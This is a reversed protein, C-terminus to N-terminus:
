SSRILRRPRGFTSPWTTGAPPISSSMDLCSRSTGVKKRLGARKNMAKFVNKVADYTLRRPPEGRSVFLPAEDDGRRALYRGVWELARDTFFLVRQKRGKGIVRGARREFDIDSRDLSLVESIRAGTGLLVEVLARFRLRALPVQGLPERPRIIANLFEGVEHRTLYVVDRRPIRPVRVRRPDLAPLQLIERCFKLFSRLANLVGAVRAEGCRRQEMTRRLSLVYGLNLTAVPLDGIDRIVWGLAERYRAITLPSRRMEYRAWGWFPAPDDRDYSASWGSGRSVSTRPRGTGPVSQSYREKRAQFFVM